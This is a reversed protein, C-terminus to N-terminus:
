PAFADLGTSDTLEERLREAQCSFRFWVSMGTESGDALALPVFRYLASCLPVFFVGDRRRFAGTSRVLSTNLGRHSLSSVFLNAIFLLVTMSVFSSPERTIGPGM